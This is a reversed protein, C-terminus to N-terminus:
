PPPTEPFPPSPGAEPNLLWAMKANIFAVLGELGSIRVTLQRRQETLFALVLDEEGAAFTRKDLFLGIDALTLGLAKGVRIVRAREVDKASFIQYPRSAGKRGTEPRLLGRRVYLRVTDKPLRSARAFASIMM